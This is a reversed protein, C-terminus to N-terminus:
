YTCCAAYLWQKIMVVGLAIEFERHSKMNGCVKLLTCTDPSTNVTDLVRSTISKNSYILNASPIDCDDGFPISPDELALNLSPFALNPEVSYNSAVNDIAFTHNVTNYTINHYIPSLNNQDIPYFYYIAHNTENRQLQMTYNGTSYIVTATGVFPLSSTVDEWKVGELLAYSDWDPSQCANQYVAASWTPAAVWNFWLQWTGLGLCLAFWPLGILCVCCKDFAKNFATFGATLLCMSAPCTLNVTFFCFFYFFWTFAVGGSSSLNQAVKSGPFVSQYVYFYNFVLFIGEIILCIAIVTAINCFNQFHFVRALFGKTNKFLQRCKQPKPEVSAVEFQEMHASPKYSSSSSAEIDVDPQESNRKRWPRM